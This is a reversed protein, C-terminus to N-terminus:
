PPIGATYRLFRSCIYRSVARATLGLAMRHLAICGWKRKRAAGSAAQATSQMAAQSARRAVAAAAAKQRSMAIQQKEETQKRLDEMVGGLVQIDYQM